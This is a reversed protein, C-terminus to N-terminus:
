LMRILHGHVHPEFCQPLLLVPLRLDGHQLLLVSLLMVQLLLLLVQLQLQLLLLMMLM